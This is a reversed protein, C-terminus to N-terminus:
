ASARHLTPVCQALAHALRQWQADNGPLGVRVSPHAAFYRTWIGQAALAEHLAAARPDDTWSFLPTARVAFGHARLLAALQEGDATLRARAAAQWARDAFAATVAHRAPGSVTWAGLMDGLAAIREPQALVFGARIGALGFFKGVSRLVVLGPRDVHAALSPTAGTDAFAEDVILTGGRASLQAHWGLLREVPVADATPNNPNGVIAHLLTAPLRDAEIDLAVVRHGHRAFAPAYEGYALAAVAADGPPLLAPLARIAAQSGAVPLVHAADPAHYYAAARAALADGDDPLRRWADAPVPPVPYGVPNIGTSLDLWGDYPIRHRRAAEHLNGGHTIRADSM